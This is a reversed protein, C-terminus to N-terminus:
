QKILRLERGCFQCYRVNNYNITDGKTGKVNMQGTEQGLATFPTLTGDDNVMTGMSQCCIDISYDMYGIALSTINTLRNKLTVVGNSVKNNRM